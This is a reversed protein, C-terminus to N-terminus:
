ETPEATPRRPEVLNAYSERLKDRAFGGVLWSYTNYFGRKLWAPGPRLFDAILVIRDEDADKWVEHDNSADIAFAVGRRWAVTRDGVAIECRGSPIHLGLHARLTGNKDDRHRPITKRQAPLRSFMASRFEPICRLAAETKPFHRAVADLREGYVYLHLLQWREEGYQKNRGEALQELDPFARGAAVYAEIEAAIDESRAEVESLWPLEASTWIPGKGIPSLRVALADASRFALNWFKKTLAATM